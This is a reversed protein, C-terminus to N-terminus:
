EAIPSNGGAPVSPSAEGVELVGPLDTGVLLKDVDLIMVFKKGALGMGQLVGAQRPTGYDAAKQVQDQSFDAVKNVFDTMVGFVTKENKYTSEVIVICTTKTVETPPLGFRIALDIVPVVNGRLNIVGRVNPPADPVKTITDYEIIERVRMVDIAYEEGGIYFRLFKSLPTAHSTQSM